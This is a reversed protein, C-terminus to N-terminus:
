RGTDVSGLELEGVVSMDIEAEGTVNWAVTALTGLASAEFLAPDLQKRLLVSAEVWPTEAGAETLGLVNMLARKLVDGMYKVQPLEAETLVTPETSTKSDLNPSAVGMVLVSPQTIRLNRRFRYPMNGGPWYKLVFPTQNDQWVILAGNALTIYSHDHFLRVPQLGM